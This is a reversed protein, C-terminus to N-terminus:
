PRSKAERKLPLKLVFSPRIAQDEATTADLLKPRCGMPWMPRSRPHIRRTRKGKREQEKGVRPRFKLPTVRRLRTPPAKSNDTISCYKKAVYAAEQWTEPARYVQKEGDAPKLPWFGEYELIRTKLSPGIKLIFSDRICM